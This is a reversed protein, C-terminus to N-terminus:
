HPAGAPRRCQTGSPGKASPDRWGGIARGVLRIGGALEHGEARCEGMDADAHRNALMSGRTQAGPDLKNLGNTSITEFVGHLVSTLEPDSLLTGDEHLYRTRDLLPLMNATWKAEGANIIRIEDHMQPIYGYDLRGVDGGAANFRTRMAEVTKLWTEAAKKLVANGTSGPKFIEQVLGGANRADEMLGFFRPEVSQITEVLDSFYENAVGKTKAYANELIRQVAAYPKQGAATLAQYASELRDHALITLAVRAKKKSAEALLDQGAVQAAEILREAQSKGQWASLDARAARKMAQTIRQEIGSIEAQNLSRGIAQAVALICQQKM